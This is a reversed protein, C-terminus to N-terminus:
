AGQAIAHAPNLRGLSLEDRRHGLPVNSPLPRRLTVAVAPVARLLAAFERRSFALVRAPTTAVVGSIAETPSGALLATHGFWAGPTLTAVHEGARTLTIHGDLVMVFQPETHDERWVSTGAPLNIETGLRDITNIEDTTCGSFLEFLALRRQHPNRTRM